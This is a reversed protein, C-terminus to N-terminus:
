FDFNMFKPKRIKWTQHLVQSIQPAVASLIAPSCAVSSFSVLPTAEAAGTTTESFWFKQCPRRTMFKRSAQITKAKTM